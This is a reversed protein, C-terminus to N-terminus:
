CAFGSISSNDQLFKEIRIELHRSIVCPSFSMCSKSIPTQLVGILGNIGDRLLTQCTDDRMINWNQNNFVAEVHIKTRTLTDKNNTM